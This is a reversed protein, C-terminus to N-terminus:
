GGLDVAKMLIRGMKGKCDGKGMGRGNRNEQGEGRGSGVSRPPAYFYAASDVPNIKVDAGTEEMVQKIHAGRKGIVHGVLEHLVCLKVPMPLAGDAAQEGDEVEALLKTLIADLAAAAQEASGEITVVREVTNRGEYQDRRQVDVRAGSTHSIERINAGGRGIIAGAM